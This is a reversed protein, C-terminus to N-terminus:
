VGLRPDRPDASYEPGGPAAGAALGGSEPILVDGGLKLEPRRLMWWGGPGERGRHFPGGLDAGLVSAAISHPIAPRPSVILEGDILEGVLHEPVALLDEETARRRAIVM